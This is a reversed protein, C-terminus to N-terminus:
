LTDPSACPLLSTSKHQALAPCTLACAWEISRRLQGRRVQQVLPPMEMVAALAAEAARGGPGAARASSLGRQAAVHIQAGTM